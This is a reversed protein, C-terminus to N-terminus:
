LSLSHFIRTADDSTIPAYEGYEKNVSRDSRSCRLYFDLALCYHDHVDPCIKGNLAICLNEFLSFVQQYHKPYQLYENFSIVPRSRKIKPASGRIWYPKNLIKSRGYTSLAIELCLEQWAFVRLHQFKLFVNFIKRLLSTRTVSYSYRPSYSSFNLYNRRFIDAPSVSFPTLCKYLNKVQAKSTGLTRFVAYPIGMCSVFDNNESLFKSSDIICRPSFYDDDTVILAYETDISDLGSCLRRTYSGQPSDTDHPIEPYHQYHINPSFTSLDSFIKSSGDLIKVQLNSSSYYGVINKLYEPRNCTPLVLSVNELSQFINSLIM